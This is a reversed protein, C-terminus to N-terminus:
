HVPASSYSEHYGFLQKYRAIDEPRGIAKAINDSLKVLHHGNAESPKIVLSIQPFGFDNTLETGWGYTDRMRGNTFRHLGLIRDDTLSDSYVLLKSRADVGHKQYFPLARKELFEEPSGSDQRSGKWDQAFSEDMRSFFFDSGFTDPLAISLGQGYAKWWLEIFEVQSHRVAEEGHEEALGAMVMPMQHANTGMPLLNNIIASEVCSTGLFQVPLEEKMVQDVYIQWERSFRRRTGFDSFTIGPESRLKQIKGRLRTIADAFVAEQEFRSLERLYSECYLQIIIALAHIEWHVTESWYGPFDLKFRDKSIELDYSPLRLRRLHELYEERFMRESYENTGRLFHLDSNGFSLSRVHDLEERLQGPDIRQQLQADLTRCFTSFTVHVNPFHQKIVQGMTFVYFDNDM